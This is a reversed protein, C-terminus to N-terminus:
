QKPKFQNDYIQQQLEKNQDETLLAEWRPTEGIDKLSCHCTMCSTKYSGECHCLICGSKGPVMLRPNTGTEDWFGCANEKCIGLRRSAEQKIEENSSIYTNYLGEAIQSKNEWAIQFKERLTM